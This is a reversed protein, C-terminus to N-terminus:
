FALGAAASLSYRAGHRRSFHGTYAVGVTIREDMRVAVGVDAGWYEGPPVFGALTFRGPLRNSGATVFIGDDEAEVHYAVRAFPRIDGSYADPAAMIQYGARGILSGREFGSFHMSTSTDATEEYFPIDQQLWSLGVFPGHRLDGPAGFLWGFGAEAGLQRAAVSGTETRVARGLMVGASAGGTGGAFAAFFGPVDAPQGIAIDRGITVDTVGGSVAGHVYGDGTRLAAHLSGIAGRADLQVAEADNDHTGLTLAAGWLLREGARHNAGLTLTVVRARAAEVLTDLAFDQEGYQVTVYGRLGPEASGFQLDSLMERYVATGHNDALRVGAEGALSVGVPAALTSLVVEAVIAHGVGTPHLGDAFLWAANAGPAYAAPLGAAAPGCALADPPACAAGTVNSLDYRGPDARLENFLGYVDVPIVGGGLTGLGEALAANFSATAASLAPASPLPAYAPVTGLDPLTYAVVYRAGADQLHALQRVYAAGAATADFAAGAAGGAVATIVDNAGGWLSYIAGPDARGGRPSLHQAIQAATGPTSGPCPGAPNVCAGTWAFNTGGALSPTLPQGLFEAVIEAAVPDPNTTASLGAPLDRALALNGSDSFGDGFAVVGSFPQAGAAGACGLALLVAGAMRHFCRSM